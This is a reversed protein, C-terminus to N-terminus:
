QSVSKEGQAVIALIDSALQTLQLNLTKSTVKAYDNLGSVISNMISSRNASKTRLIPTERKIQYESIDLSDERHSSEVM